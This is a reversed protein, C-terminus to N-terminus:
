VVLYRQVKHMWGSIAQCILHSTLRLRTMKMSHATTIQIGTQPFLEQMVRTQLSDKKWITGILMQEPTTTMTKISSTQAQSHILQIPLHREAELTMTTGHIPQTETLDNLGCCSKTKTTCEMKTMMSTSTMETAM